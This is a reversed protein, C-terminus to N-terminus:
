RTIALPKLPKRDTSVKVEVTQQGPSPAGPGSAPTGSGATNIIINIGQRNDGPDQTIRLCKAALEAAALQTKQSEGKEMLDKVKRAVAVEGLGVERFVKAPDPAAEEYRRVLRKGLVLLWQDSFNTYGALKMAPIMAIDSGLFIRIFTLEQETFIVSKEQSDKKNELQIMEFKDLIVSDPVLKNDNEYLTNIYILPPTPPPAAAFNVEQTPPTKPKPTM